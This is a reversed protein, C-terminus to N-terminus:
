QGAEQKLRAMERLHEKLAKLSGSIDPLEPAINLASMEELARLLAQSTADKQDFYTSIWNEAKDLSADFAQQKRQLLALQAQELMLHLNQQLYYTQEPSMLPEVPEDRHQIVVLKEFKDVAKNWAAAAGETWSQEVAEPTIEELMSPLKRKDTVPTVRLDDVQRNIAALKLYTGETDLVPVAELAAIDEALAQRVNYLAVDDSERLINDTAKLLTLAGNATQEMLVRQNALRLLYEAEALLWDERSTDRTANVQKIADTLRQQLQDINQKEAQAQAQLSGLQQSVGGVRDAVEARANALATEVQQNLSAQASSSEQKLQWGQWYLYGVGGLAVLSLLLGLKGPWGAPQKRTAAPSSPPTSAASPQPQQQAQPTKSQETTQEAPTAAAAENKADSPSESSAKEAANDTSTSGAVEPKATTSNGADDTVPPQQDPTNDKSQEDPKRTDNM